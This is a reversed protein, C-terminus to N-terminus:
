RFRKPEDGQFSPPRQRKVDEYTKEFRDIHSNEGLAADTKGIQVRPTESTWVSSDSSGDDTRIPGRRM